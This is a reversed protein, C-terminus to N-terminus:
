TVTLKTGQPRNFIAQYISHRRNRSLVPVIFLSWEGLETHRFRYTEQTLLRQRPGRFVLSFKENGEDGARPASKNSSRRAAAQAEVLKLIVTSGDKSTVEFSTNLNKEFEAFGVHVGSSRSLSPTALMSGPLVFAGAAVTSCHLLFTRRAKM